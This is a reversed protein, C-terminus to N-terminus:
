GRDEGGAGDDAPEQDPGPRLLDVRGGLGHQAVSCGTTGRGGALRGPERASRRPMATEVMPRPFTLM